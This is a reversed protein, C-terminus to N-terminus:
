FIQMEFQPHRSSKGTIWCATNLNKVPHRRQAPAEAYRAICDNGYEVEAM